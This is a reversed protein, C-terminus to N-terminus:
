IFTKELLVLLMLAALPAHMGQPHQSRPVLEAGSCGSCPLMGYRPADRIESCGVDLLQGSRPSVWTESCGVGPLVRPKSADWM